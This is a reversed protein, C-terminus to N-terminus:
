SFYRYDYKGGRQLSCQTQQNSKDSHKMNTKEM